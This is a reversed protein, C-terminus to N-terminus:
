FRFKKANKANTHTRQGRVPLGQSKRFSKVLKIELSKKFLEFRFKSLDSALLLNLSTITKVLEDIQLNSLSKVKLNDSFGLKRIIKNSNTKGLGFISKLNLKVNRNKSLQMEFLYVM